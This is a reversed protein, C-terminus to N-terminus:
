WSIHTLRVFFLSQILSKKNGTLNKIGGKIISIIFSEYFTWEGTQFQETSQASYNSKAVDELM